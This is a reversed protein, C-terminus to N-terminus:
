SGPKSRQRARRVQRSQSRAAEEADRRARRKKVWNGLARAVAFTVIFSVLAFLLSAISTMPKHGFREAQGLM